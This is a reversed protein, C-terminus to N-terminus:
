AQSRVVEADSEGENIQFTIAELDRLWRILEIYDTAADERLALVPTDPRYNATEALSNQGRM